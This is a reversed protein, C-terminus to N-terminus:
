RRADSGSLVARLTNEQAECGTCDKENRHRCTSACAAGCGGNALATGLADELAAVREALAGVLDRTTAYDTNEWIPKWPHAAVFRGQELLSGRHPHEGRGNCVPCRGHPM